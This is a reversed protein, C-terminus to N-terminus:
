HPAGTLREAVFQRIEREVLDAHSIFVYHSARPVEVIRAHPLEEALRSRQAAEFNEQAMMARKARNEVALRGILVRHIWAYDRELDREVAYVSLVPSRVNGYDCEKEGGIIKMNTGVDTADAVYQGAPDFVRTAFVESEPWRVGYIEALYQGYASPSSRDADDAEPPAPPLQDALGLLVLRAPMGSRDYAADLYVLAETRGPYRAAFDTMEDGAVSHGVLIVRDIRLSDLVERVDDTLGGTDYGEPPRGSEGYGRRTVAIVHFANTFRPAFEDFVHASNGLGALFVLTRGAGGYDIMHIKTDRIAIRRNDHGAPDTWQTRLDVEASQPAFSDPSTSACGALLAVVVFGASCVALLKVPDGKGNTDSSTRRVTLESHGALMHKNGCEANRILPGTRQSSRVDGEM